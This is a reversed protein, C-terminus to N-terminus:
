PIRFVPYEDGEEVPIVNYKVYSSLNEPELTVFAFAANKQKTSVRYAGKPFRVERTHASTTVTTGVIGEHRNEALEVTEVTLAEVTGSYEESLEEVELGFVRLREAIDAWAGSFIYAEPRPRTLVIDPYTNNIFQVPVAVISGNRADVFEMNINTVRPEDVVVIEDVGEEFDKRAREITDYVLDFNDVALQIITEGVIVGTAVRRQFHQDGIGIGRIESLFGLGQVLGASNKATEGSSDSEAIVLNDNGPDESTFHPGTRLGHSELTAFVTNTFLGESLAIINKHVNQSKGAMFEADQAKIWQEEAGFYTTVTYEHSDWVIHPDFEVLLRKIDRTQQRQCATHDRNADYGAALPRQFYAVGDPNYRPLALIEAKELVSKAWTENADLKGLIALVAQDGAPENGHVAGEIWIRLKGSESDCEGDACLRVYPLSRKEESM